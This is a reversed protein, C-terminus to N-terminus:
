FLRFTPRYDSGEASCSSFRTLTQEEASTLLPSILDSYLVTLLFGRFCVRNYQVNVSFVAVVHQQTEALPSFFTVCVCEVTCTLREPFHFNTELTGHTLFLFFFCVVFKTNVCKREGVYVHECEGVCVAERSM